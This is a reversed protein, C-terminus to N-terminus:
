NQSMDNGTVHLEMLEPNIESNSSPTRWVPKPKQKMQKHNLMPSVMHAACLLLLTPNFSYCLWEAFLFFLFLITQSLLYLRLNPSLFVSM